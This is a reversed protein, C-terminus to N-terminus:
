TWVWPAATTSNLGNATRTPQMTLGNPNPIVENICVNGTCATSRGSTQRADERKGSSRHGITLGVFPPLSPDPQHRNPHNEHTERGLKLHIWLKDFKQAFTYIMIPVLIIGMGHSRRIGIRPPLLGIITGVILVGIGVFGTSLWVLAVVFIIVGMVMQQLPIAAHLRLMGRGVYRMMPMALLGAALTVALLRIFDSTPELSSWTEIPYMMKLALTAGSRSRSIIYLFGLVMVMVATNTASLLAIVELDQKTQPGEVGEDAEAKAIELLEDDSLETLRRTEWDMGYGQKGQAKAALNRGGMVLVTAQSATMGPLVGMSAGAVSSWFCPVVLPRAPPLAWNERQPPLHSTTAYIDLLNAIGFLGALSPLLLSADPMGIPSRAPLTFVGWGYLGALLFFATAALFGAFRSDRGLRGGTLKQMWM